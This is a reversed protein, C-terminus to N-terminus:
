RELNLVCCVSSFSTVVQNLVDRRLIFVGAETVRSINYPSARCPVGITPARRSLRVKTHISPQLKDPLSTHIHISPWVRVKPLSKFEITCEPFHVIYRRNISISYKLFINWFEIRWRLFKDPLITIPMSAPNLAWRPPHSKPHISRNSNM